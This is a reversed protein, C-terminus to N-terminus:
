ATRRIMIDNASVERHFGPWAFGLNDGDVYLCPVRQLRMGDSLIASKWGCILGDGFYQHVTDRGLRQIALLDQLNLCRELQKEDKLQQYVTGAIKTENGSLCSELTALDFEAPGTLNLEPTLSAGEWSGEPYTPVISRDVRVILPPRPLGQTRVRQMYAVWARGDEGGFLGALRAVEKLADNPLGYLALPLQGLMSTRSM